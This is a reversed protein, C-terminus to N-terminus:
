LLETVWCDLSSESVELAVGVIYAIIATTVVIYVPDISLMYSQLDVSNIDRCSATSDGVQTCKQFM